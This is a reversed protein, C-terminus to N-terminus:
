LTMQIWISIQWLIKLCNEFKGNKPKKKIAMKENMIIMIKYNRNIKSFNSNKVHKRFTWAIKALFFHWAIKACMEISYSLFPELIMHDKISFIKYSKLPIWIRERKKHFVKSFIHSWCESSLVLLLNIKRLFNLVSM